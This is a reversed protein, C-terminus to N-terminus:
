IVAFIQDCTWYHPHCCISYFIINAIVSQFFHEINHAAKACSQMHTRCCKHECILLLVCIGPSTYTTKFPEFTQRRLRFAEAISAIILFFIVFTTLQGLMTWHEPATKKKLKRHIKFFSLLLSFCSHIALLLTYIHNSKQGRKWSRQQWHYLIFRFSSPKFSMM